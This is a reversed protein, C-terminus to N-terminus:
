FSVKLVSMLFAQNHAIAFSLSSFLLPVFRTLTEGFGYRNGFSGKILYTVAEWPNIGALAILIGGIFLALIIAFISILTSVIGMNNRAFQLVRDKIPISLANPTTLESM